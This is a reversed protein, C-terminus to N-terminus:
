SRCKECVVSHSFKIASRYNFNIFIFVSNELSRYTMCTGTVVVYLYKGGQLLSMVENSMDHRHPRKKNIM